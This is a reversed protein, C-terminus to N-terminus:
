EEEETLDVLFVLENVPADYTQKLMDRANPTNWVYVSYVPEGTPVKGGFPLQSSVFATDLIDLYWGPGKFELGTIAEFEEKTMLEQWDFGPPLLVSNEKTNEM